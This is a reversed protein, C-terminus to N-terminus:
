AFIETREILTKDCATERGDANYSRGSLFLKLRKELSRADGPLPQCGSQAFLKVEGVSVKQWGPRAATAAQSLNVSVSDVSVKSSGTGIDKGLYFPRM